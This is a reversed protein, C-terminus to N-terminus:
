VSYNYLFVKLNYEEAMSVMHQTGTSRGDWIAILADGNKAMVENRDLGARANYKGYSNAKIIANPTDLNKWDALFEQFPINNLKAWEEALSDVGKAGGSIVLTIDFNSAAIAQEVINLNKISRSGAIITKM